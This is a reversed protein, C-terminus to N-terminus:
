LRPCCHVRNPCCLFPIADLRVCAWEPGYQTSLLVVLSREIESRLRHKSSSSSRCGCHLKQHDPLELRALRYSPYSVEPLFKPCICATQIQASQTFILVALQLDRSISMIVPEAITYQMWTYISYLMPSIEVVRSPFSSLESKRGRM